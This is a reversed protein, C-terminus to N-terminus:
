PDKKQTRPNWPGDEVCEDLFHDYLDHPIGMSQASYAVLDVVARTAPFRLPARDFDGVVFGYVSILKADAEEPEYIRTLVSREGRLTAVIVNAIALSATRENWTTMKPMPRPETFVENAWGVAKWGCECSDLPIRRHAKDFSLDFEHLGVAPCFIPDRTPM